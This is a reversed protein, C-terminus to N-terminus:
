EIEMNQVNLCINLLVPGPRSNKALYIAEELISQINTTDIITYVKKTVLKFIEETKVEQVGKSRLKTGQSLHNANAQGALIIMPTSDIFSATIGTIANLIGPGATLICLGLRNTYQGYADAAIGCAQEHLNFVAKINSKNLADTLFISAGGVFCFAHSVEQELRRIIYQAVTESM